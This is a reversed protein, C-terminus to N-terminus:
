SPVSEEYKWDYDEMKLWPKEPYWIVGTKGMVKSTLSVLNCIQGRYMKPFLAM